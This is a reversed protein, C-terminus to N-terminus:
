SGHPFVKLSQVGELLDFLFCTYHKESKKQAVISTDGMSTRPRAVRGAAQLQPRRRFGQFTSFTTPLHDLGFIERLNSTISILNINIMSTIEVSDHSRTEMPVAHVIRCQSGAIHLIGSLSPRAVPCLPGKDPQYGGRLDNHHRAFKQTKELKIDSGGSLDLYKM